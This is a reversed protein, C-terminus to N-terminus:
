GERAEGQAAHAATKPASITIDRQAGGDLKIEKNIDHGNRRVLEVSLGVLSGTLVSLVDSVPCEKLALDIADRLPQVKDVM